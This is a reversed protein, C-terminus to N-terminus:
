NDWLYNQVLVIYIDSCAVDHVDNDATYELKIIDYFHTTSKNVCCWEGKNNM